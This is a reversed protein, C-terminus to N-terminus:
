RADAQDMVEVFITVENTWWNVQWDRGVDTKGHREIPLRM